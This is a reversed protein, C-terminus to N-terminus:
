WSVNNECNFCKGRRMDLNVNDLGTGSVACLLQTVMHCWEWVSYVNGPCGQAAYRVSYMSTIMHCWEWVSYMNGGCKWSQMTWYRISGICRLQTGMHYWKWLSVCEQRMELVVNDLVQGLVDFNLERTVDNKCPYVCEQWMDLVVNDLLQGLVDLQTVTHCWEWLVCEQWMDLIANDLLQGLVDLQTVTRVVCM